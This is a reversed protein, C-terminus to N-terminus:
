RNIFCKGQIDKVLLVMDVLLEGEEYIPEPYHLLFFNKRVGFACFGNKQYFKLQRGVTATGM